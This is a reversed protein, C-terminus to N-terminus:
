LPLTDQSLPQSLSKGYCGHRIWPQRTYKSVFKGYVDVLARTPKTLKLSGAPDLIKLFCTGFFWHQDYEMFLRTSTQGLRWTTKWRCFPLLWHAWLLDDEGQFLWRWLMMLMLFNGAMRLHRPCSYEKGEQIDWSTLLHNTFLNYGWYIGNIPLNYGM